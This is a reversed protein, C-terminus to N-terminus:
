SPALTTGVKEADKDLADVYRRNKSPIYKAYHKGLLRPQPWTRTQPPSVIRNIIM